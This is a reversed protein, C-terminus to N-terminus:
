QRVVAFLLLRICRLSSIRPIWGMSLAFSFRNNQSIIFCCIISTFRVDRYNTQSILTNHLFLFLLFHNWRSKSIKLPSLIVFRYLYYHCHCYRSVPRSLMFAVALLLLTRRKAYCFCCDVSVCAFLLPLWGTTDVAVSCPFNHQYYNQIISNVISISDIILPSRLSHAGSQM